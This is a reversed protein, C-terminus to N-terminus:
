QGRKCRKTGCPLLPLPQCCTSIKVPTKGTATTPVDVDKSSDQTQLFVLLKFAGRACMWEIRGRVVDLKAVLGRLRGGFTIPTAQVADMASTLAGDNKVHVLPAAFAYSQCGIWLIFSHGCGGGHPLQLM